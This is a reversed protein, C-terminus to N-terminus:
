SSSQARSQEIGQELALRGLVPIRIERGEITLLGEAQLRTLNRSVLDRVTGIEAAITQQNDLTFACEGSDQRGQSKAKRVLYSILRQRVTTFSLEEVISVLRRLRNGVVELVKLAVEPHELCLSRFDERSVFVLESEKLAAASAPYAGGDFVPLEAVSQGPGDLSLVHERGSASVKFIRILGKAIVFLGACPEGDSFLLANPPYRKYRARAALSILESETLATFLPAQKLITVIERAAASM